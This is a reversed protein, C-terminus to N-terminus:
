RRAADARELAAARSAVTDLDGGLADMRVQFRCDIILLAIVYGALNAAFIVLFLWRWPVLLGLYLVVRKLGPDFHARDTVTTLLYIAVLALLALTWTVLGAAAFALFILTEAARDLRTDLIRGRESYLGFERAIGGDLGDLIQGVAMLVLGWVVQHAAILVAAPVSAVFSAWTLQDPTLGLRLHLARIAGKLIRDGLKPEPVPPREPM